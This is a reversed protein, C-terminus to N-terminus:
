EFSAATAVQLANSRNNFYSAAREIVPTCRTVDDSAWMASWDRAFPEMKVTCMDQSTMQSTLQTDSVTVIENQATIAAICVSV